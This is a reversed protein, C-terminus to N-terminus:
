VAKPASTSAEPPVRKPRRFWRLHETALREAEEISQLHYNSPCEVNHAIYIAAIRLAHARSGIPPEPPSTPSRM